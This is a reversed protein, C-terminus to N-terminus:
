CTVKRAADDIQVLLDPECAVVVARTPAGQPPQAGRLPVRACFLLLREFVPCTPLAHSALGDYPAKAFEDKCEHSTDSNATKAGSYKASRRVSSGNAIEDTMADGRSM